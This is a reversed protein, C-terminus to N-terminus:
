EDEDAPGRIVSWMKMDDASMTVEGDLARAADDVYILFLIPGLVSGKPVGNDVMAPDSKGQGICVIQQRGVLFNEIWKLFNGGIWIKQLRHLLGQHPVTDFAKQFDILCANLTKSLLRYDFASKPGSAQLTNWNTGPANFDGMIMINPRSSFKDM